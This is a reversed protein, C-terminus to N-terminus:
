KILDKNKWYEKFPNPIYFETACYFRVDPNQFFQYDNEILWIVVPVGRHEFTIYVKTFEAKPEWMKLISKCSETLYRTKVGISIEDMTLRPDEDLMCRATEDLLMFPISARELIDQTHLLAEHLDDHQKSSRSMSLNQTIQEM